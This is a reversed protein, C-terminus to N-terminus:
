DTAREKTYTSALPSLRRVYSFHALAVPRPDREGGLLREFWKERMALFTEEVQGSAQRLVVALDEMSIQKEDDSRAVPDPEGSLDAELAEYARLLDLRQENFEASRAKYVEGLADRAGYDDLVAL